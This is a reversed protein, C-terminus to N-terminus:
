HLKLIIKQKLLSTDLKLVGLFGTQFSSSLKCKEGAKRTAVRETWLLQSVASQVLCMGKRPWVTIYNTSDTSLAPIDLVGNGKRYNVIKTLKSLGEM